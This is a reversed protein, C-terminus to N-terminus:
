IVAENRENSSGKRGLLLRAILIVVLVPISKFPLLGVSLTAATWKHDQMAQEAEIHGYFYMTGLFAAGAVFLIIGLGLTKKTALSAAMWGLLAFPALLMVTSIPQTASYYLTESLAEGISNRGFSLRAVIECGIDAVAFVAIALCNFLLYPRSRLKMIAAM